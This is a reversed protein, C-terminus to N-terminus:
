AELVNIIRLLRSKPRMEPAQPANLTQQVLTIQFLNSPGPSCKTNATSFQNLAPQANLGYIAPFM